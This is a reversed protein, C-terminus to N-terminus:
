LESLKSDYVVGITRLWIVHKAYFPYGGLGSINLTVIVGENM